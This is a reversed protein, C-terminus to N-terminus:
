FFDDLSSAKPEILGADLLKQELQEPITSFIDIHHNDYLKRSIFTQIDNKSYRHFILPIDKAYVISIFFQLERHKWRNHDKVEQYLLELYTSAQKLTKQQLAHSARGYAKVEVIGFIVKKSLSRYVVVDARKSRGLRKEEFKTFGFSHFLLGVKKQASSWDLTAWDSRTLSLLDKDDM